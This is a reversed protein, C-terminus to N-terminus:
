PLGQLRPTEKNDSTIADIQRYLNLFDFHNWAEVIQGGEVRVIVTGTIEFRKKSAAFGLGDGQHTGTVSCMAVVKDGDSFTDLITVKIDPFANLFAQHFVKFSEPTIPGEDSLGHAIGNAAFLEDITEARRQNWVEEFWRAVIAENETSM